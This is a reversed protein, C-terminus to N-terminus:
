KKYFKMKNFYVFDDYLEEPFVLTINDSSYISMKNEDVSGIWEISTSDLLTLSDAWQSSNYQVIAKGNSIDKIEISVNNGAATKAKWIGIMRSTDISVDKSVPEGEMVWSLDGGAVKVANLDFSFETIKSYYKGDLLARITYSAKGNELELNSKIIEEFGYPGLENDYLVSEMNPEELEEFVPLSEDNKYAKFNWAGDVKSYEAYYKQKLKYDPSFYAPEDDIQRTETVEFTYLLKKSKKEVLELNDFSSTIAKGGERNLYSTIQSAIEEETPKNNNFFCGSLLGVTLMIMLLILLTRRANM